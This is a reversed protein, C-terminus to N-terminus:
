KEASHAIENIEDFAALPIHCYGEPNKNLYDQHYEEASVFKELPKLEVVFVPYNAKVKDAYERIINGDEENTYYIGTQYQDGIDEGQQKETTPDVVYFFAALLQKLSVEDANYIVHVTERYGTDGKCVMKYDPNIEKKGNAYGCITETVGSICQFLHETGWFCGGAFYIEKQNNM